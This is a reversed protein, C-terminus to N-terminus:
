SVGLNLLWSSRIRRTRVRYTPLKSEAREERGLLAALGDLLGDEGERKRRRRKGGNNIQNNLLTAAAVVSGIATLAVIPNIGSTCSYGGGGGYDDEHETYVYTPGYTTFGGGGGGYSDSKDELGVGGNEGVLALLQSTRDFAIGEGTESFADDSGVGKRRKKGKNKKKRRRRNKRRLKERLEKLRELEEEKEALVAEGAGGGYDYDYYLDYSASASAAEAAATKTELALLDSPM